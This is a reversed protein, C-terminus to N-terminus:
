FLMKMHYAGAISQAAGHYAEVQGILPYGQQLIRCVKSQRDRFLHLANKSLKVISNVIGRGVLAAACLRQEKSQLFDHAFSDIGRVGTLM